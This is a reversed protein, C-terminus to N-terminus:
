LERKSGHGRMADGDADGHTSGYRDRNTFTDSDARPWMTGSPDLSHEIWTPSLWIRGRGDGNLDGIALSIPGGGGTVEMSGSLGGLGDGLRISVTGSNTNAVAVDQDGDGNFDGIALSSPNVGVSVSTSASFGGM